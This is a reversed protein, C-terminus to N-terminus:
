AGGSVKTIRIYGPMITSAGGAGAGASAAGASSGRLSYIISASSPTMRRSLLVPLGVAAAATAPNTTRGIEGISAAAGAGVKEYLWFRSNDTTDNNVLNPIYAQIMVITSGDYTIANSTVITTAAGETTGALTVPSTFEAYDFEYGPSYKWALTTTAGAGTLVKGALPAALAAPAGATTGQIIDGVATMPNTLSSGLLDVPYVLADPTAGGTLFQCFTGVGRAAGADVAQKAVTHTKGFNGRTVAASTNVLAAYGAVLVRGTALNAITEQAVGVGGTFAGAANTTFADNNTTNIVVVDGAIVGAGSQNTLALVVQRGYTNAPM